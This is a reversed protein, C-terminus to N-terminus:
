IKISNELGPSLVLFLTFIIPCIQERRGVIILVKDGPNSFFMSINSQYSELLGSIHTQTPFNGYCFTLTFNDLSM